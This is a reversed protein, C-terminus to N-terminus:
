RAEGVMKAAVKMFVVIVVMSIISSWPIGIVPVVELTTFTTPTIDCNVTYTGAVSGINTVLASIEVTEGVNVGAPVISLDSVEFEAIPLDEPVLIIDLTNDGVVLTIDIVKTNFGDESVTLTYDGPEVDHFSYLGYINTTTEHGNLTIAIGDML